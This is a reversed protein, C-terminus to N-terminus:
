KQRRWSADTQDRGIRFFAARDESPQHPPGASAKAVCRGGSCTQVRRRFHAVNWGIERRLGGLFTGGSTVSRRVGLECGGAATGMTWWCAAGAMLAVGVDTENEFSSSPQASRIQRRWIKEADLLSGGSLTTKVNRDAIPSFDSNSEV